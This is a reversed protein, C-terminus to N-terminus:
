SEGGTLPTSAAVLAEAPSLSDLFGQLLMAAAVHDVSQSLTRRGGGGKRIKRATETSQGEDCLFLPLALVRSLDQATSIFSPAHPNSDGSLHYYPVGFVLGTVGHDAAIKQLSAILREGKELPITGSGERVLVNLPRALTRSPDSLAVGVRRGGWDIGMLVGPFRDAAGM